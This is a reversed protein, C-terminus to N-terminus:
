GNASRGGSRGLHRTPREVHLFVDIEDFLERALPYGATKSVGAGLVYVNM